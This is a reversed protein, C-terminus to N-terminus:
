PSASNNASYEGQTLLDPRGLPCGALLALDGAGPLSTRLDTAALKILPENTTIRQVAPPTVFPNPSVKLIAVDAKEDKGVVRASYVSFSANVLINKDLDYVGPYAVKVQIDDASEVVHWCTAVYGVRRLGTIRKPHWALRCSTRHTIEGM